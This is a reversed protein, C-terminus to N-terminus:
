SDQTGSLWPASYTGKEVLDLIYGAIRECNFREHTWQMGANAIKKREKEHKLYWDVLDFFEDATDFYRLHMGDKFLLDTDPVRKALVFTGCALYDTLRDSHYLRVSNVANVSVGIRAGSIAYFYNIGGIQPRGFCGYLTCNSQQSLRNVLEERLIQGYGARHKVTGTWLIDTEWEPSVDYRYEVDPDSMNPMFVCRNVGANSYDQLFEGDNTATMIDLKKAIEIKDPHLKPWPDFDSGIFVANPAAERLHLITEANLAGAFSVYVIDPEYNKVQGALLEDVRSKFFRKAFSKSKLPSAESLAGCYSFLHVDKGLRIFGKALKHMPELFMKIPKHKIDAVIFIRKAKPM